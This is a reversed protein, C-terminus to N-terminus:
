KNFWKIYKIDPYARLKNVNTEDWKINKHIETGDKLCAVGWGSDNYLGAYCLQIFISVPQIDEPEDEYDYKFDEIVPLKKFAM